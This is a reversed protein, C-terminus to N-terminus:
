SDGLIKISAFDEWPLGKGFCSVVLWRLAPCPPQEFPVWSPLFVHYPPVQSPRTTSSINSYRRDVADNDCILFVKPFLSRRIRSRRGGGASIMDIMIILNYTYDYDHDNDHWRRRIIDFM